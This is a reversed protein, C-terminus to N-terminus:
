MTTLTGRKAKSFNAPASWVRVVWMFDTPSAMAMPLDKGSARWFARLDSSFFPDDKLQAPSGPSLSASRSAERVGCSPRSRVICCAILAPAVISSSYAAVLM